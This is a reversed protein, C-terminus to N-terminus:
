PAVHVNQDKAKIAPAADRIGGSAIIPNNIIAPLTHLAAEYATAAM